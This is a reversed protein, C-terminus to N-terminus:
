TGRETLTFSGRDTGYSGVAVCVTSSPCAIGSLSTDTSSAPNPTTVHAWSAGCSVTFAM